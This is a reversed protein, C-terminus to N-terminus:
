ESDKKKLKLYILQILAMSIVSFGIIDILTSYPHYNHQLSMVMSSLWLVFPLALIIIYIYLTEVRRINLCYFSAFIVLLSSILICDKLPVQVPIDSTVIMEYLWLILLLISFAITFVINRGENM